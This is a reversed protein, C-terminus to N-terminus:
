TELAAHVAQQMELMANRHMSCSGHEAGCKQLMRLIGPLMCWPRASCPLMAKRQTSCSAMGPIM